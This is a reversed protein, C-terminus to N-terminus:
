SRWRRKAPDHPERESLGQRLTLIAFDETEDRDTVCSEIAYTGRVRKSAYYSPYSWLSNVQQGPEDAGLRSM